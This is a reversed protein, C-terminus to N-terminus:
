VQRLGEELRTTQKRSVASFLPNFTPCASCAPGYPKGYVKWTPM